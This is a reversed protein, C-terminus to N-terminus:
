LSLTTVHDLMYQIQNNKLESRKAETLCTNEVSNKTLSPPHVHLTEPLFRSAHMISICFSRSPWDNGSCLATWPRSVMLSMLNGSLDSNMDLIPLKCPLYTELMINDIRQCQNSYMSYSRRCICYVDPSYNNNWGEAKSRTQM